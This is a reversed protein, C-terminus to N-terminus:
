KYMGVHLEEVEVVLKRIIIQLIKVTSKRSPALVPAM